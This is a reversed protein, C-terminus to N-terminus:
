RAYSAPRQDPISVPEPRGVTGWRHTRSQPRRLDWDDGCGTGDGSAPILAPRALGQPRRKRWGRRHDGAGRQVVPKRVASVIIGALVTGRPRTPMRRIPHEALRAHRPRGPDSRSRDMTLPRSPRASIDVDGLFVSVSISIATRIGCSTAVAGTSRDRDRRRGRSRASRPSSM